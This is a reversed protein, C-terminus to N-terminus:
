APMSVPVNWIEPHPEDATQYPTGAELCAVIAETINELLEEQTEGQSVCGHLELVEAWYGGEDAPWVVVTFKQM